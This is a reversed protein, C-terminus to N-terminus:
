HAPCASVWIAVGTPNGTYRDWFHRTLVDVRLGLDTTQGAAFTPGSQAL